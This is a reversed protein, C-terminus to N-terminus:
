DCIGLAEKGQLGLGQAMGGVFTINGSTCVWNVGRCVLKGLFGTLRM